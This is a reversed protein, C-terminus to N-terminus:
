YEKEIRDAEDRLEKARAEDNAVCHLLPEGISEAELVCVDHYDAAARLAAPCKRLAKIESESFELGEARIKAAQDRWVKEHQHDDAQASDRMSDAQRDCYAATEEKTTM